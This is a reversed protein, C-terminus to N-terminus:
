SMTSKFFTCFFLVSKDRLSKETEHAVELEDQLKATARRAEDIQESFGQSRGEEKTLLEAVATSKESTAQLKLELKEVDAELKSKDREAAEIRYYCV